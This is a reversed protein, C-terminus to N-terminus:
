QKSSIKYDKYLDNNFNNIQKLESISLVEEMFIFFSISLVEKLSKGLRTENGTVM